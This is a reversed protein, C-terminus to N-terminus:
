KRLAKKQSIYKEKININVGQQLGAIAKQTINGEAQVRYEREHKHLPNLLYDNLYKDDTLILLGERDYDLRGVPYVNVPVDFFAKM